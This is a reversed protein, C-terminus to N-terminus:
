KHCVFVEVEEVNSEGQDIKHTYTTAGRWVWFMGQTPEWQRACSGGVWIRVATMGVQDSGWRRRVDVEDEGEFQGMGGEETDFGGGGIASGQM